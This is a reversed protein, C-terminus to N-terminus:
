TRGKEVIERHLEEVTKEVGTFMYEYSLGTERRLMSLDSYNLGYNVTKDRNEIGTYLFQLKKQDIHPNQLLEESGHRKRELNYLVIRSLQIQLDRYEESDACCDMIDLIDHLTETDFIREDSSDGAPRYETKKSSSVFYIDCNVYRIIRLMRETNVPQGKRLSAWRQHVSVLTRLLGGKKRDSTNDDTLLYDVPIDLFDAIKKLKDPRPVSRGAKWDSLTSRAIGTNDAVDSDRLGREDRIRQYIEYM